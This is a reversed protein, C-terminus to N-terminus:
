EGGNGEMREGGGREEEAVRRVVGVENLYEEFVNSVVVGMDVLEKLREREEGTEAKMM